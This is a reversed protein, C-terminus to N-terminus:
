LWNGIMLFASWYGPHRYRADSLLKQQAMQLAKAKSNSASGLQRYFEAILETSAQDNIYWLTALASRAGAKVAVGALGLAAREDGAATRCASLTLLELPNERFRSFKILQELRDMNLRGDYTLVFSKHPDSDFQGHSAIHVVSYDM